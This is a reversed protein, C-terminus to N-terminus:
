GTSRVRSAFADNHSKGILAERKENVTGAYDRGKAHYGAGNLADVIKIVTLSNLTWVMEKPLGRYTRQAMDVEAIFGCVIGEAIRAQVEKLRELSGVEVEAKGKYRADAQIVALKAAVKEIGGKSRALKALSEALVMEPSPGPGDGFLAKALEDQMRDSAQKLPSPAAAQASAIAKGHVAEAKFQHPSTGLAKARARRTAWGKAFKSKTKKPKKAM